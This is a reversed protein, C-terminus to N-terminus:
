ELAIKNKCYELEKENDSFLAKIAEAGHVYENLHQVKEELQNQMEEVKERNERHLKNEEVELAEQLDQRM